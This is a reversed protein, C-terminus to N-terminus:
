CLDFGLWVIANKSRGSWWTACLCVFINSDKPLNPSNCVKWAVPNAPVPVAWMVANNRLVALTGNAWGASGADVVVVLTGGGACFGGVEATAVGNFCTLVVMPDSPGYMKVVVRGAALGDRVGAHSLNDARIM